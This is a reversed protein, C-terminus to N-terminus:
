GASGGGHGEVRFGGGEEDPRDLGGNWSGLNEDGVPVLAVGLQECVVSERQPRVERVHRGDRESNGGVVGERHLFPHHERPAQREGEIRREFLVQAPAGRGVSAARRSALPHPMHLDRRLQEHEESEALRLQGVHHLQRQQELLPRHRNPALDSSQVGQAVSRVLCHRPGVPLHVPAERNCRTDLAKLAGVASEKLCHHSVRLRRLALNLRVADRLIDRFVLVVVVHLQAQTFSPEGELCKLQGHTRGVPASTKKIALGTKNLCHYM